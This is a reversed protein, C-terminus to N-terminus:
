PINAAMPRASNSSSNLQGPERPAAFAGLVSLRERDSAAGGAADSRRLKRTESQVYVSHSGSRSPPSLWSSGFASRSRSAERRIVGHPARIVTMGVLDEEALARNTELVLEVAERLNARAEDLTEGQSNAGPLEEV